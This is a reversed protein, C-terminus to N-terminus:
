DCPELLDQIVELVYREEHSLQTVIENAEPEKSNGYNDDQMM